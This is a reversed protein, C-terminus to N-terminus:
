LDFNFLQKDIESYAEYELLEYLRKRTQMSDVLSHQGGEEMLTKLGREIAGMAIRLTTVPYIVLNFGLDQLQKVPLLPSKGFETMNAMLPVDVAQRFREFENESTLAEPFIMDAGADVYAKAREIAAGLGEVTNADTRAVILFNADRRAMSAARVKLAMDRTSILQKNDLHGCRKPFVQDEIHCGSAGSSELSAITRSVNAAEGFGTDADVLLPIQSLSSIAATRDTLETLTTLGIDPMGLDAAFAAGSLYTGEFGIEEVLKAVLPSHAGPFRAIGGDTLLERLRLRKETKDTIPKNM